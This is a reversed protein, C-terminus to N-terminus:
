STRLSLVRIIREGDATVDGVKWGLEQAAQQAVLPSELAERHALELAVMGAQLRAMERLNDNLVQLISM